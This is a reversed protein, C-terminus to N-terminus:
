EEEGDEDALGDLMDVMAAFQEKAEEAEEPTSQIMQGLWMFDSYGDWSIVKDGVWQAWCTFPMDVPVGQATEGVFRAEAVMTDGSEILKKWQIRGNPIGLEPDFWMAIKKQIDAAGEATVVQAGFHFRGVADARVLSFIYDYNAVNEQNMNDFWTVWKDARDSAVVSAVCAALLFLKM